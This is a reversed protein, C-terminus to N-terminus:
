EDQVLLRHGCWPCYDFKKGEYQGIYSHTLAMNFPANIADINEKWDVCDCYKQM